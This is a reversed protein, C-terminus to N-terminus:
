KTHNANHVVVYQTTLFIKEKETSKESATFLAQFILHKSTKV